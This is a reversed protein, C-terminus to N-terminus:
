RGGMVLWPFVFVVLFLAILFIALSIRAAITQSSLPERGNRPSRTPM